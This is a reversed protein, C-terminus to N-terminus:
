SGGEVVDLKKGSFGFGDKAFEYGHSKVHFFVTKGMLGPEYFAVVGNSDTAYTVDATTTLEVLPVGRKTQEDVVLIKFYKSAGFAQGCALGLLILIRIIRAITFEGSGQMYM